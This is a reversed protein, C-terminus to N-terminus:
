REWAATQSKLTPEEMMHGTLICNNDECWKGLTEAYAQAFRESIHAHYYYRIQSFRGDPLNWILEPIKELIDTSYAAFFTVALDYTWPLLLEKKEKAFGLTM